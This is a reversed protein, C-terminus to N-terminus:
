TLLNKAVHQKAFSVVLCLAMENGLVNVFCFNANQLELVKRIKNIEVRSFDVM